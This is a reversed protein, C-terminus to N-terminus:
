TRRYTWRLRLDSLHAVLAALLWLAIRPWSAGLLAARLALLLAAGAGLSFTLQSAPLGRRSQRGLLVLGIFEMLMLGLIGDIVRGTAFLEAM